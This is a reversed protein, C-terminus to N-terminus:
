RELTGWSGARVIRIAIVASLQMTRYAVYRIRLLRIAEDRELGDTLLEATGDIRVWGLRSWTEEYHDALFAVNPNELINQVRKLIRGSKPKEDIASYISDDRAVFCVPVLHPKGSHDATALHGIRRRTLFRRESESLM